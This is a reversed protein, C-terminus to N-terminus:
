SVIASMLLFTTKVMKPAYRQFTVFFAAESAFFRLFSVFIQKRQMPEPAIIRPAKFQVGNQTFVM